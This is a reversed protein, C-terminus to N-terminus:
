KLVIYSPMGDEYISSVEGQVLPTLYTILEEKVGNGAENIWEVPIKKEKNAGGLLM